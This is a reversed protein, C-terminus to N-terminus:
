PATIPVVDDLRLLTGRTGPPPAGEDIRLLNNEGLSAEYIQRDVQKCDIVKTEIKASM